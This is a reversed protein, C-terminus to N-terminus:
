IKGAVSLVFFVLYIGHHLFRQFYNHQGLLHGIGAVHALVSHLGVARDIPRREGSDEIGLVEIRQLLREHELVHKRAAPDLDQRHPGAASRLNDALPHEATGVPAYQQGVTLERAGIRQSGGIRQRARRELHIGVDDDGATLGDVAIRSLDSRLDGLLQVPRLHGVGLLDDADLAVLQQDAAPQLMADLRDSAAQRQHHGDVSRSGLATRAM